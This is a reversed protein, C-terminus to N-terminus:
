VKAVKLLTWYRCGGSYRRTRISLLLPTSSNHEYAASMDVEVWSQSPACVCMATREETIKKPLPPPPNTARGELQHNALPAVPSQNMLHLFLNATTPTIRDSKTGQFSSHLKPLTAHVIRVCVAMQLRSELFTQKHLHGSLAPHLFPDPRKGVQLVM